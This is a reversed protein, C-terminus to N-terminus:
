CHIRTLERWTWTPVVRYAYPLRARRVRATAFRSVLSFVAGIAFMVTLTLVLLFSIGTLTFKKSLYFQARTNEM